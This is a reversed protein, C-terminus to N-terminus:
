RANRKNNEEKDLLNFSRYLNKLVTRVSTQTTANTINNLQNLAEKMTKANQLKIYFNKVNQNTLGIDIIKPVAGFTVYKLGELLSGTLVNKAAKGAAALISAQEAKGIVHTGSGSTNALAHVKNIDDIVNSVRDYHKVEDQFIKQKVSKDLEKYRRNWILPDFPQNSKEGASGIMRNFNNRFDEKEVKNLSSLVESAKNGSTRKDRSLMDVFEIPNDLKSALANLDYRENQAFDSYDKLTKQMQMAARPDKKALEAGVSEQIDKRLAGYLGELNAVDQNSFQKKFVGTKSGIDRLVDDAFLYHISDKQNQMGEILTNKMMNNQLIKEMAPDIAVPVGNILVTKAPLNEEVMKKLKSVNKGMDTEFFGPQNKGQNYLDKIKVKLGEGYFNQFEQGVPTSLWMRIHAPETSVNNLLKTLFQDVNKLVVKGSTKSQVDARIKDFRNGFETKIDKVHQEFAPKLKEGFESKHFDSAHLPTIQESVQRKQNELAEQVNSGFFSKESSKAALRIADSDSVNPLYSTVGAEKYMEDIKAADSKLMDKKAEKWARNKPLNRVASGALKGGTLAGLIGAGTSMALNNEDEPLAYPASAAGLNSAIDVPSKINSGAEFFKGVASPAKGIVEIGKKGTKGLVDSAKAVDEVLKGGKQLLKGAGSFTAMQPIVSIVSNVNEAFPSEAKNLDLERKLTDEMLKKSAAGWGLPKYGKANKSLADETPISYDEGRMPINQSEGASQHYLYHGLDAMSPISSVAESAIQGARDLPHKLTEVGYDYLKSLFGKEDRKKTKEKNINEPEAIERMNRRLAMKAENLSINFKEALQKAEIDFKLNFQDRTPQKPAQQM